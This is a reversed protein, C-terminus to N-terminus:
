EQLETNDLVWSNLRMSRRLLLRALLIGGLAGCTNLVVDYATGFRGPVFTQLWELSAGFGVTAIFPWLFRATISRCRGLTWMWSVALCAYIGVHLIKQLLSPTTHVLWVFGFGKPEDSDPTLSLAAVVVM